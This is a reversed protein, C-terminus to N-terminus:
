PRADSRNGAADGGAPAEEDARLRAYYSFRPGLRREVRLGARRAHRRLSGVPVAHWDLLWEGVVLRGGPKLVRRLETLAASRDPIEGLATVLFAADFSADPYPLTRADGRTPRVNDLQERAAAQVTHDLMEQQVDLVDVTGGPRVARAVPLTFLGTGPGIELVGEGPEPALLELLGERTLYPLEKDLMWRLSYPFPTTYKRWWLGAAVLAGSAAAAGARGSPSPRWPETAPPLFATTWRSKGPRGRRRLDTGM